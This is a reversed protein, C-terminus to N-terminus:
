LFFLSARLVIACALIIGMASHSAQVSDPRIATRHRHSAVREAMGPSPYGLLIIKALFYGPRTVPCAASVLLFYVMSHARKSHAGSPIICRCALSTYQVSFTKAGDGAHRM